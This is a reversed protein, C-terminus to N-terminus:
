MKELAYLLLEADANQLMKSDSLIRRWNRAGAQGQMLGLYHKVMHRMTTGRENGLQTRCYSVLKHVVSERTLVEHNDQYFLADWDAMVYPNHYAERGVMVGDVYTLHHAIEDNTKIGGNIIIEREPFDQKLRYVYEYRLPPVDRNEKPSLGDLWANRAHVVFTRCDTKHILEGVFDRVFEYSEEKDIGIRHKVTVDISCADQMARVCDVVLGVDLMLCAGFAGKQVRPSPCGCNLNVEDYHYNQAIKACKALDEPCSGGLQLALPHEEPSFALFHDTNGHILAGTTVMESYLFAHHTLERAFFRYHRDTWDLMPAVSVRRKGKNSAQQNSNMYM